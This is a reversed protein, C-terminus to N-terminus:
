RGDDNDTPFWFDGALFADQREARDRSLWRPDGARIVGMNEGSRVIYLSRPWVAFLERIAQIAVAEQESIEDGNDAEFTRKRFIAM